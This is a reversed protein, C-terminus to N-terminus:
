KEAWVALENGAPDAFHFRRGGPFNYAPKIVKGDGKEVAAATAELDTSFLIVLPAGASIKDGKLFGGDLSGDSFGTYDSGFDTFKWGFVGGYFAKIAALDPAQFEIYNIRNHTNM